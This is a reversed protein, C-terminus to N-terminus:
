LQTAYKLIMWCQVLNVQPLVCCLCCKQTNKKKVNRVWPSKTQKENQKQKKISKPPSPIIKIYNLATSRNMVENTEDVSGRLKQSWFEIHASSNIPQFFVLPPGEDFPQMTQYKYDTEVGIMVCCFLWIFLYCSFLIELIQLLDQLPCVDQSVVILVWSLLLNSFM